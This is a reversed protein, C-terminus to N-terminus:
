GPERPAAITVPGAATLYDKCTVKVESGAPIPWGELKLWGVNISDGPQITSAFYKKIEGSPAKIEVTVDHLFEEPSTNTVTIVLGQGVASDRASIEVPPKLNCGTLALSLVALATTARVMTARVTTAGGGGTPPERTPPM